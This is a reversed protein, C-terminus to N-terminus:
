TLESEVLECLIHGITIHCEQIRPVSSSPVKLLLESDEAMKDGRAGTLGITHIGMSKAQELAKLMNPSSGSTSIAVLVDGPKGLAEIQRSFLLDFSEDNPVATLISTDTTLAVAPLAKRKRAFKEVLECAMHQSDAASGGNGCFMVKHGSRMSEILLNGARLIQEALSILKMKVESSEQLVSKIISIRDDGM